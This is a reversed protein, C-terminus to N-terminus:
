YAYDVEKDIKEYHVISTVPKFKDYNERRLKGRYSDIGTGLIVIFIMLLLNYALRKIKRNHIQLSIERLGDILAFLLIFGATRCISLLGMTILYKTMM